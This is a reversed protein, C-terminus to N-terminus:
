HLLSDPKNMVEAQMKSLNNLVLQYIEGLLEPNQSYFIFSEDYQAKTITHKKFVDAGAQVDLSAITEPSVSFNMSAELLHIDVLVKVMKEQSLVTDPISAREKDSCSFFLISLFLLIDKKLKM